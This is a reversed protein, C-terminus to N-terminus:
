IVLFFDLQVFLQVVYRSIKTGSHSKAADRKVLECVQNALRVDIWPAGVKICETDSNVFIANQRHETSVMDSAQTMIHRHWLSLIVTFMWENNWYSYSIVCPKEACILKNYLTPWYFSCWMNQQRAITCNINAWVASYASLLIITM